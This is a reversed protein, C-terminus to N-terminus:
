RMHVGAPFLMSASVSEGPQASVGPQRDVEPDCGRGTDDDACVVAGRAAPDETSPAADDVEALVEAGVVSFGPAVASVSESPDPTAGGPDPAAGESITTEAIEASEVADLIARGTVRRCLPIVLGLTYVSPVVVAFCPYQIM